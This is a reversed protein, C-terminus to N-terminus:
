LWRALWEETQEWLQKGVAPDLLEKKPTRPGKPTLYSGPTVPGTAAEVVVRAGEETTIMRGTALRRIPQPLRRYIDSAVVGPHVAVPVVSRSQLRRALELTFVVQAAKSLQYEGFGTRSRTAGRARELDFTKIGYHANSSVSIIRSPQNALLRYTLLFHSLYNVAITPEFGEATIGPRSVAGANNILIFGKRCLRALITAAGATSQMSSLEAEVLAAPRRRGVEELVPRHKERNRGVMVIEAGADALAAAAARGIGTSAGTIVVQVPVDGSM